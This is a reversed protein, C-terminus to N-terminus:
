RSKSTCEVLSSRCRQSQLGKGVIDLSEVLVTHAKADDECCGRREIRRASHRFQHSPLLSLLLIPREVRQQNDSDEDHDKQFHM